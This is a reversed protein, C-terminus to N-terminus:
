IAEAYKDSNNIKYIKVAKALDAPLKEDMESMMREGLRVAEPVSSQMGFVILDMAYFSNFIESQSSKGTELVVAQRMVELKQKNSMTRAQLSLETDGEKYSDVGIVNNVKLFQSYLEKVKAEM